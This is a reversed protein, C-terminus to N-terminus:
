SLPSFTKFGIRKAISVAENLKELKIGTNLGLSDCLKVISETAINGRAGAVFPCGGVGGCSSEFSYVGSKIAAYISAIGIGFKDHLHLTIISDPFKEQFYEVMIAVDDPSAVSDTDALVIERPLNQIKDNLSNIIKSIEEGRDQRKGNELKSFVKSVVVGHFPVKNEKFSTNLSVGLEIQGSLTTGMNDKLFQEDPSLYIWGRKTLEKHKVSRQVGRPNLSLGFLKCSKSNNKILPVLTDADAMQPVKKPHVFSVVEIEQLGSDILAHIYEVKGDTPLIKSIQAGERPGVDRILIKELKGM